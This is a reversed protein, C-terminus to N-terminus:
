LPISGEPPDYSISRSSLNEASHFKELISARDVQDANWFGNLLQWTDNGSILPNMVSALSFYRFAAGEDGLFLFRISYRLSLHALKEISKPLRETVKKLKRVGAIDAFQHNLVYLGIIPMLNTDAQSTDSQSHLRHLLLADKIYVIDLDTSINFDLIRTGYYRSVLGGTVTRADVIKRRYMIQSVSPNVGAMMYVAAQQEGPILCSQNYFPLEETRVGHEDIIARNVMALGANPYTELAKVCREVYEPELADDSCFNIYYKGKMVRRCNAFNADPGFNIRNRTINMKDPYRDAFELAIEWSDDDSANDSFCLEINEYTQAFISELCQRLYRGYNYNYCLISVLPKKHISPLPDPPALEKTAVIREIMRHTVFEDKDMSQICNKIYGPLFVNDGYLFVGYRGKTMLQCYHKNIDLGLARRNRHITVFNPYQQQFSVAINWSGDRTADDIFIVEFNPLVDQLFIDNLTDFLYQGSYNYVFISLLPNLPDNQTPEKYM